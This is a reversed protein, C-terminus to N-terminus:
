FVESWRIAISGNDERTKKNDINKNNQSAPNENTIAVNNALENDLSDDGFVVSVKQELTPAQSEKLELVLEYGDHKNWTSDSSSGYHQLRQTTLTPIALGIILKIHQVIPGNAFTKKNDIPGHRIKLKQLPPCQAKKLNSLSYQQHQM